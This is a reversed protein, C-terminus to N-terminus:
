TLVKNVYTESVGNRRRRQTDYVNGLRIGTVNALKGLVYVYPDVAPVAGPLKHGKSALIINGAVDTSANVANFFTQATTALQGQETSSITPGTGSLQLNVGPLYMRGKSALGRQNDSTMTLALTIQPPLPTGGQVGYIPTGYDYIDIMELDVDGDTELQSVKVQKTNYYNSIHSNTATFFTTWAAAIASATATGPDAADAGVAGVYFGTTWEEAGSFCEGSITVKNVRHPYAAPHKAM